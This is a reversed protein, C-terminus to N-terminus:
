TVLLAPLAPGAYRPPAKTNQEVTKQLGHSVSGLSTQRKPFPSIADRTLHAKLSPSCVAPHILSKQMAKATAIKLCFPIKPYCDATVKEKCSM